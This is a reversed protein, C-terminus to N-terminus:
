SLYADNLSTFDGTSKWGIVQGADNFTWTFKVTVSFPKGTANALGDHRVDNIVKRGEERFNSPEFYTTQTSTGLGTFFRAVGDKGRFEGGYPTVKPDAGNDFTVEDALQALIGPVDGQAFCSYIHQVTSLQNSM